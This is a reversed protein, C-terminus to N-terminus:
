LSNMRERLEAGVRAKGAAFSEGDAISLPKGVRIEKSALDVKIPVFNVHRGMEDYYYKELAMFGTYIEGMKASDGSYDMDPFILLNENMGFFDISQGFTTKLGKVSGRYVPVARIAKILKPVYWAAVRAAFNSFGRGFGHKQPFTFGAFQKYTGEKDFFCSLVWLHVPLTFWMMVGLVGTMNQHHGIYVAPAEPLEGRVKLKRNFRRLVWRSFYFLRGYFREREYTHLFFNFLMTKVIRASDPVTKYHSGQNNDFYVVEINIQKFEIKRRKMQILMNIEYDYRQGTLKALWGLEPMPIGRLGTQTDPLYVHYLANFFRSTTRNGIQSRKPVSSHA